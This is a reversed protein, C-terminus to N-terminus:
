ASSSRVDPESARDGGSRRLTQRRMACCPRPCPPNRARGEVTRRRPRADCTPRPLDPAAASFARSPPTLWAAFRQWADTNAIAAHLPHRVVLVLMGWATARHLTKLRTLDFAILPLLLLAYTVAYGQFYHVCRPRVHADPPERRCERHPDDRYADAAQAHGSRAPLPDGGSCCRSCCCRSCRRSIFARTFPTPRPKGFIVMYGTIVMVAVVAVAVKGMARHWRARGLRILLTQSLLLLLWATFAMAHVHVIAELPPAGFWFGLYYTPAFGAVVVALATLGM